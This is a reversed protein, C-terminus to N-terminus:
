SDPATSTLYATAALVILAVAAEIRISKRLRQAGLTFNERLLPTLRLKNIAAISLLVAVLGLKILLREQYASALDIRGGTLLVALVVGAVVLAAVIWMAHRGFAEVAPVVIAPDTLRTLAILPLLAGIWWHVGALHVALLPAAWIRIESAATHGELLFSGIMVGAAVAVLLRLRLRMAILVVAAAALRVLAAQGIPTELGMTRMDSGFALGLDGDAIALQFAGYRLPEIVLLVLFGGVVQLRLARWVAAAARPFSLSFLAGGAVAISGAYVLARLAIALPELETM